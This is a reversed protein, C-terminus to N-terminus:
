GEERPSEGGWGVSPCGLAHAAPPSLLSAKREQEPFMGGSVSIVEGVEVALTFGRLM